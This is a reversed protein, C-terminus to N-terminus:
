DGKLLKLIENKCKPYYLKKCLYGDIKVAKTKRYELSINKDDLINFYNLVFELNEKIRKRDIHWNSNVIYKTQLLLIKDEKCECSLLNIISIVDDKTPKKNGKDIRDLLRDIRNIIEESM